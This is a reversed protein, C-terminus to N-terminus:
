EEIESEIPGAFRFSEAHLLKM